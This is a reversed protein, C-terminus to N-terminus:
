LRSRLTRFEEMGSAHEQQQFFLMTRLDPQWSAPNSRALLTEFTFHPAFQPAAASTAQVGSSVPTMVPMEGVPQAELPLGQGAAREQEAKKLAEHIRSM